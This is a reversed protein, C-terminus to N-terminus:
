NGFIKGNGSKKIFLKLFFQCNGLKYISNYDNEIGMVENINKREPHFGGKMWNGIVKVDEKQTHDASNFQLKLNGSKLYQNNLESVSHDYYM